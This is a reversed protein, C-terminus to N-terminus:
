DKDGDEGKEKKHGKNEETQEKSTEKEVSVVKGTKADVLVETIDKTGPTAIDISWVLVGDEEELEVEKVKGGPAKALALKEADAKTIGAQAELKASDQDQEKNEKAVAATTLGAITGGVILSLIIDRPKM